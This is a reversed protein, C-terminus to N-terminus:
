APSMEKPISSAATWQKLAGDATLRYVWLPGDSVTKPVLHQRYAEILGAAELKDISSNLLAKEPLRIHKRIAIWGRIQMAHKEGEALSELVYGDLKKSM